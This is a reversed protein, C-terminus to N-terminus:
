TVRSAMGPRGGAAGAGGGRRGGRVMLRGAAWSMPKPGLNVAAVANPETSFGTLEDIMATASTGIPCANPSRSPM